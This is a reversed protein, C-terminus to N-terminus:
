RPERRIFEKRRNFGSLEERSMCKMVQDSLPKLVTFDEIFTGRYKVEGCEGCWVVHAENQTTALVMGSSNALASSRFYYRDTHECAEIM